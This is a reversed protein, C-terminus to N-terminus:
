YTNFRQRFGDANADRKSLIPNVQPWPIGLDTDLINLTFENEPSYESTLNYIMETNDELSLFGHGFGSPVYIADGRRSNLEILLFKGFNPSERRLDVVVDLVSGQICTVWKDQGGLSVSYHIGRMANKKSLSFNSQAVNFEIGTRDMFEKVKFWERFIGRDDKWIEMSIKWVGNLTLEEIELKWGL